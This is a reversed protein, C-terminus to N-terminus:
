PLVTVTTDAETTNGELDAAIFGVVYEGAAADLEQWEFPRDNQFTLTGGEQRGTTLRGQSDPELWTEYVTFKDGPTPTIEWPAGPNDGEQNFGMVKRLLGDRFYARAYRQEGDQYTYVGDVTYVTDEYSQGYSEPMLAAQVRTQGDTIAYALPEWEFELKFDGQGWDPYFV